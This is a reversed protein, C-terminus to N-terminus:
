DRLDVTLMKNKLALLRYTFVTNGQFPFAFTVKRSFFAM